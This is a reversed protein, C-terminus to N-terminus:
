SNFTSLFQKISKIGQSLSKNQYQKILATGMIGIDAYPELANMQSKESLGFGVGIPLKTLKRVRKLYDATDKGIITKSGTTGKRAVCYVFGSGHQLVSKLRDQKINPSVVPVFNLHYKACMAILGNGKEEDFPYDPIILSAVGSALALKCFKEMGFRFVVNFYTMIVIPTDLKDNLRGIMDFCKQTTAGNKLAEINAEAIVPGDAIPDSFPIQIELINVGSEAMTIAYEESDSLTPYGAVLHTM